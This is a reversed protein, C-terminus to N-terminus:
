LTYLGGELLDKETTWYIQNNPLIIKEGYKPYVISPVLGIDDGDKYFVKLNKRRDEKLYYTKGDKVKAIM